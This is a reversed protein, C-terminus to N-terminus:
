VPSKTKALIGTTSLGEVTPAIVIKARDAGVVETEEYDGGKVIVDPAIQNIIEDPTDEEFAVVFDVFDLSAMLQMRECLSVVPREPGKLRKVSDDSNLAVVLYDGQEAAFKLTEIHGRHLLDFCGNAFVVNKFNKLKEPEIFKATTPSVKKHLEYPTIPSNHKRTVYLAGAEYAIEAADQVNFGHGLAMALFAMFCDGAGVVSEPHLNKQAPRYQFSQGGAIGVVGNGGQTIIVSDCRIREIFYKCQGLWNSAPIGSLMEAEKDNPKFVTCGKWKELDNGKPDVITPISKIREVCWPSNGFMGKDYDSFILVDFKPDHLIYQDYLAKICSKLNFDALGYNPREVDWRYTPFDGDYIRKKRPVMGYTMTNQSHYNDNYDRNNIKQMDFCLSTDIDYSEFCTKAFLDVLSCLRVDADFHKFQYAVNAAGGPLIQCPREDESLMVPIPFEPSMRKVSVQFYEDVMADGIVGVRVTGQKKLFEQIVTSM